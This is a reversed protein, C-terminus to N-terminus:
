DNRRAYNPLLKGMFREWSYEWADLIDIDSSFNDLRKDEGKEAAKSDWVASKLGDPLIKCTDLVYMRGLNILTNGCYIRQKIEKKASDGIGAPIGEAQLAKRLGNILYQSESDGFIYMIPVGPFDREIQRYFQVFERNLRDSDIDGKKGEIHHDAIAGIQKFNIHVASAVFTTLSRNGGFDIGISIFMLDKLWREREADTEFSKTYKEPHDAFQRYIVGEAAVWLGLIYRKFFVGQYLARYREKVRESLSLNDDMTFHLYLLRKEEARDIWNKKFWHLPNLPNCNFWFKSGEVSCRGTAQNVFSEPMLAVEDFFAGALTLGQILDQSGEDKGGFVYFYNTVGKRSVELLNDTRHDVFKYGRTWLMVKLPKLVNRRFTGITKGCLAFNEDSFSEMAWMIFSLAMSVTKGSRIAGDAIIGDYDQVPSEPFWWTLVKKQKESFPRFKFAERIRAM